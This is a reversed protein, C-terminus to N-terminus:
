SVPAAKMEKIDGDALAKKKKSRQHLKYAALGMLAAGTGLGGILWPLSKGFGKNWSARIGQYIEPYSEQVGVQGKTPDPVNGVMNGLYIQRAKSLDATLGNLKGLEEPKGVRETRMANLADNYRLTEMKKSLEDMLPANSSVTQAIHSEDASDSTLPNTSMPGLLARNLYTHRELQRMTNYDGKTLDFDGYQQHHTIHGITNRIDGNDGWTSLTFRDLARDGPATTAELDKTIGYTDTADSVLDAIDQGQMVLKPLPLGGIKRQILKAAGTGYMRLLKDMEPEAKDPSMFPAPTDADPRLLPSKLYEAKNSNAWTDIDDLLANTDTRVKNTYLAGGGLAGAGLFALISKNRNRKRVEEETQKKVAAPKKLLSFLRRRQTEPLSALLNSLTTRDISM